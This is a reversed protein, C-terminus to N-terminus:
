PVNREIFNKMETYAIDDRCYRRLGTLTNKGFRDILEPDAGNDLLLKVMDFHKCGKVAVTLATESKNYQYNVDAGYALLLKVTSIRNMVIAKSLPSYLGHGDIVNTSAGYELLIKVLKDDYQYITFLLSTAGFKNKMEIDVGSDLIESLKEYLRNQIAAFIPPVGRKVDKEYITYRKNKQEKEEQKKIKNYAQEIKKSELELVKKKKEKIKLYEPHKKHLMYLWSTLQELEGKYFRQQKRDKERKLDNEYREKQDERNKIYKLTFIQYMEDVPLLIKCTNQNANKGWIDAIEDEIHNVENLDYDYFHQGMYNENAKAKAIQKETETYLNRANKRFNSGMEIWESVNHEKLSAQICNLALDKKVDAEFIDYMGEAEVFEKSSKELEKQYFKIKSDNYDNVQYQQHFSTNYSNYSQKGIMYFVSTYIVIYGLSILFFVTGVIRLTKQGFYFINGQVSTDTGIKQSIDIVISKTVLDHIMQKKKTFFMILPLLIFILQPLQQVTLSPPLSMTHQMGRLYIYLVFPAISLVFRISAKVFSLAQFDTDLIKIGLLKGGITTQWKYIMFPFYILVIGSMITGLISDANIMYSVFGQLVSLFVIDVLVALLRTFFGAYKVENNGEM